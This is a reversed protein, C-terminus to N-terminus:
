TAELLSWPSTRYFCRFGMRPGKQPSKTRIRPQIESKQDTVGVKPRYSQSEPRFGFWKVAFEGGFWKEPTRRSDLYAMPRIQFGDSSECWKHRTKLSRTQCAQPALIQLWIACMALKLNGFEMLTKALWSSALCACLQHTKIPSIDQLISEARINGINLHLSDELNSSSPPCCVFVGFIPHFVCCFVIRAPNDWQYKNSIIPTRKEGTDAAFTAKTYNGGPFDARFDLLAGHNLRDHQPITGTCGQNWQFTWAENSHQMVHTCVCEWFCGVAFEALITCTCGQVLINCWYQVHSSVRACTESVHEPVQWYLVQRLCPCTRLIPRQVVLAHQLLLAPWTTGGFGEHQMHACCSDDQNIAKEEHRAGSKRGLTGAVKEIVSLKALAVWQPQDDCSLNSTTAKLNQQVQQHSLQGPACIREAQPM